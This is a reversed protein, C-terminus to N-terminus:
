CAYVLVLSTFLGFFSTWQFNSRRRLLAPDLFATWTECDLEKLDVKIDLCNFNLIPKKGREDGEVCLEV